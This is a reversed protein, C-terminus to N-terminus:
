KQMQMESLIHQAYADKFNNYDEIRKLKNAQIAEANMEAELRAMVADWPYRLSFVTPKTWEVKIRLRPGSQGPPIRVKCEGPTGGSPLEIM